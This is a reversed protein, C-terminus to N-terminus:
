QVIEDLWVLIREGKEFEKCDKTLEVGLAVIVTDYIKRVIGEGNWRTNINFSVKENLKPTKM